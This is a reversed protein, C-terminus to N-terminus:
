KEPTTGNTETEEGIAAGASGVQRWQASRTINPVADGVMLQQAVGEVATWKSDVVQPRCRGGSLESDSANTASAHPCPLCGKANGEPISDV